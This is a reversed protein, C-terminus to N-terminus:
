RKLYAAALPTVSPLPVFWRRGGNSTRKVSPNPRMTSCSLMRQCGRLVRLVRLLAAANVKSRTSTRMSRNFRTQLASLRCSAVRMSLRFVLSASTNPSGSLVVPRGSAASPPVAWASPPSSARRPCRVTRRGGCSPRGMCVAASSSADRVARGDSSSVTHMRPLPRVDYTLPLRRRPQGRRLM